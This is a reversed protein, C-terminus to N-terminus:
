GRNESDDGESQSKKAARKAAAAALMKRLAHRKESRERAKLARLRQYANLAPLTAYYLATGVILGPGLGGVLYPLYITRFFVKLSGWQVAEDTFIAVINHWIEGWANGFAALISGFDMPAHIGLLRHGLEISTVAILPFTIPNGVFTAFVAALVNGRIAWAVLAASVFHFGFFPTFSVLTGAFVGRAIRHPADPLRRMRHIVYRIARIFGGKPYIFERTAELITRSNRRKFVM